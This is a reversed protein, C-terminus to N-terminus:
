SSGSKEHFLTKHEASTELLIREQLVFQFQTEKKHCHHGLAPEFGARAMHLALYGLPLPLM